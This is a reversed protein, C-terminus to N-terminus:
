REQSFGSAGGGQLVENGPLREGGPRCTNALRGRPVAASTVTRFHAKEPTGRLSPEDSLSIRAGGSVVNWSTKEPICTETTVKITSTESKKRRAKSSGRQEFSGRQVARRPQSVTVLPDSYSALASSRPPREWTAPALGLLIRKLIPGKKVEMAGNESRSCTQAGDQSTSGVVTVTANTGKGKEICELEDKAHTKGDIEATM